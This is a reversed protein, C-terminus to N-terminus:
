EEKRLLQEIIRAYVRFASPLPFTNQLQSWTVWAYDDSLAVSEIIEYIRGTMRWEIHTFLHRAEPLDGIYRCREQMYIPLAALPQESLINPMEWMGALLGTDDRRHLLVADEEGHLCVM